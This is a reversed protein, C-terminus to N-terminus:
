FVPMRCIPTTSIWKAAILHPLTQQIERDRVIQQEALTHRHHLEEATRPRRHQKTAYTASGGSTLRGHLQAYGRLTSSRKSAYAVASWDGEFAGRNTHRGM